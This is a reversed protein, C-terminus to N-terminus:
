YSPMSKLCSSLCCSSPVGDCGNDCYGRRHGYACHPSGLVDVENSKDDVRQQGICLRNESVWANVIWLGDTGKTRSTAGRLKKGDLCIQKQALLDLIANGHKELCSRLLEPELLQFVRKFTDHSPIRASFDILDPLQPGRTQAFIVMDEYDQGNCLLTCLGALLM